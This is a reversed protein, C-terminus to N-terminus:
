GSKRGAQHSLDESRLALVLALERQIPHLDVALTDLRVGSPTVRGKAVLRDREYIVIRGYIMSGIRYTRRDFVFHTGNPRFRIEVEGFPNELIAHDRDWFYRVRGSDQPGTGRILYEGM